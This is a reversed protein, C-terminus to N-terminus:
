GPGDRARGVIRYSGTRSDRALRFDGPGFSVFEWEHGGPKPCDEYPCEGSASVDFEEGWDDVPELDVNYLSGFGQIMRRGKIAMLYDVVAGAGGNV